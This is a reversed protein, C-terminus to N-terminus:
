KVGIMRAIGASDINNEIYLTKIRQKEQVTLDNDTKNCHKAIYANITDEPLQTVKQILSVPHDERYLTEILTKEIRNNEVATLDM